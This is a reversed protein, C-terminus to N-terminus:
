PYGILTKVWRTLRNNVLTKRRCCYDYEALWPDGHYRASTYQHMQTMRAVLYGEGENISIVQPSTRSHHHTAGIDRVVLVSM